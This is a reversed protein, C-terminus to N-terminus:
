FKSIFNHANDYMIKQVLQENYGIKLYSEYLNEIKEIGCLDDPVECGDFDSGISVTNEGGLSLFHETNKLVDTVSAQEPDDSLFNKYFNIGVIGGRDRIVKFEDDTLNRRHNCVARSDSHSACFPKTAVASVDYFLRDSAHSLDIIIGRSELERVCDAGFKKLGIDQSDAGGGIQNEDNWTLTLMRVGHKKLLDINSIDDGIVAGNEVAFFFGNDDEADGSTIIPIGFRESEARLLRSATLFLKMSQAYSLKDPIWITMFQKWKDLCKRAKSVSIHFGDTDLTRDETVARYLTDCHLDFYQM